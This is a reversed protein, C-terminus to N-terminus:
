KKYNKDVFWQYLDQNLAKLETPKVFFWSYAEAYFEEPKHPWNETAYPTIPDINNAEVFDVFKQVRASRQHALSQARVTNFWNNQKTEVKDYITLAPNDKSSSELNSKETDRNTALKEVKVILKEVDEEKMKQDDTQMSLNEIGTNLADIAATYASAKTKFKESEEGMSKNAATLSKTQDSKSTGVKDNIEKLDDPSIMTKKALEKKSKMAEEATTIEKNKDTLLKEMAKWAAQKKMLPPRDKDIQKKLKAKETKDKSAKFEEVLANFALRYKEFDDYIPKKDTVIDKGEQVLKNNKAEATHQEFVAERREFSAM